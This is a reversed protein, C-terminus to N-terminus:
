LATCLCECDGGQDCACADFICKELYIDVPVESHCPSFLSSKLIGCQKVAWVKREPRDDCTNTIELAEPCYTQLKWSDGFIKASAETIGGSPTQFDDADNDNYNGCLGKIKDKWRPDVKVYVRTGKDWQVVLGLYLEPGKSASRIEKYGAHFQLGDFQCNCEGIPVCEGDDDLAEGEPCNCGEVCEAGPPFSKSRLKCPCQDRIICRNEHLVTGDPCYCGEVCGDKNGDDVEETSAGCGPQGAAPGCSKYIRGGTCQMPCTKDDRWEALNKVGEQSCARVYVNMTECACLSPEQKQCSCYDWRCADLLISVDIISHCPAFRQDYLLKRCFLTAQHGKSGEVEDDPCAHEESPLDNCETELNEVKWSIALNSVTQPQHGVNNLMDNSADGDINGCLGETRNWLSEQVEIQVLQQSFVKLYLTETKNILIYRDM